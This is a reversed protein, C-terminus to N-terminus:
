QSGFPFAQTEILQIVEGLALQVNERVEIPYNYSTANAEFDDIDLVQYSFDPNVLIDIDLDIYSLIQGDFTPPMNINCYFSKLVQDRDSFRFVNYWRDLWYYETSLTGSAITGLLDHEIDEDFEADLILLPPQYKLLQASWRRHEVGSYKHTRVLIRKESDITNSGGM